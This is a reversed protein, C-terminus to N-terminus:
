LPFAHRGFERLACYKDALMVLVAEKSKPFTLPSIPWMHSLIINREKRNLSFASEANRLARKPHEVAHRYASIPEERFNYLQFDHLMAGRALAEEDIRLGLKQAMRFSSEAVSRCHDFTRCGKHQTYRKMQCVRPDSALDNLAGYFKTEDNKKM